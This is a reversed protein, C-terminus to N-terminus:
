INGSNLFNISLKIKFGLKSGGSMARGRLPQQSIAKLGGLDRATIIKSALKYLKQLYMPGVFVDKVVCDKKKYPLIIQLKDEMFEILEKKILLDEQPSVGNKIIKRMNIESFTPGEIYLNYKQVNEIFSQLFNPDKFQKILEQIENYYKPTNLNKIITENLWKIIEKTKEPSEKIADSCYQVNKGISVENLQGLNMRSYVAFTNTIYDIPINNQVTLPRLEDPLILSVVGKGAYRNAFKDGLHSSDIKSVEFELLYVIDKLNIPGRERDRDTYVYYQKLIKRVFDENFDLMLKTYIDIVYEGYTTCLHDLVKQLQVDLLKVDRKLRHIRFGSIVGNDIQSKIKNIILGSSGFTNMNILDSLNMNKMLSLVKNRIDIPNEVNLGKMNKPVFHCCIIDKKIKQGVSPFYEFSNELDVYYKQLITYEYIPVYVKDIFQAQSKNAFSESVVIGDEHNYGFLSMYATQVNYGFTPIGNIFNDYEYIIDNKKFKTGEELCFRLHSAYIGTCKKLPPIQYSKIEDINFYRLIIINEDKFIIEGDDKALLIGLHSNKTIHFYENSVVYPIECNLSTLSQQVQKSSMQLRTSDTQSIFPIASLNISTIM